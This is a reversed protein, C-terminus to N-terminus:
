PYFLKQSAKRLEARHDPHAIAILEAARQRVSKGLLRAVGYETVVTDTIERPISVVSGAEFQPTITSIAGQMVTSPMVCVYRGKPALFAGIAFALHGGIGAYVRPGITYVAVQGSLDIGLGGNIAVIGENKSINRPDLLYEISYAEFARNSFVTAREAPTNGILTAVFRGPHLASTRGTFVGREVLPVLGAVTLEGFYSLEQKDRFLGYHVMGSTHTGTGVQVTDGDKVITNTYYALGEDARDFDVPLVAMPREDFFFHDIETVHLWTDGYTEGIHPNIAAAVRKARRAVPGSDWVNPGVCVYGKENPPSCTIQALDIEWAEERGADLAKHGGVLWFPHYDIVHAELGPRSYANGFQDQYWFAESSEATMIDPGALALGRVQVGRLEDKRAVLASVFQPSGHVPPFLVHDGSRVTAAIEEATGLRADFWSRWDTTFDARM